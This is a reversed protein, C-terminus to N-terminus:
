PVSVTAPLQLGRKEYRYVTRETKILEAVLATTDLNKRSIEYQRRLGDIAQQLAPKGAAYKAIRDLVAMKNDCREFAYNIATALVLENPNGDEEQLEAPLNIQISHTSESLTSNIRANLRANDDLIDVSQIFFNTSINLDFNLSALGAGASLVASAIALRKESRQKALQKEIDRSLQLTKESFTYFNKNQEKLLWDETVLGLCDQALATLNAYENQKLQKSCRAIGALVAKKARVKVWEGAVMDDIKFYAGYYQNLAAPFNAAKEYQKGGTYYNVFVGPMHYFPGSLKQIADKVDASINDNAGAFSKRQEFNYYRLVHLAADGVPAKKNPKSVTFRESSFIDNLAIGEAIVHMKSDPNTPMPEYARCKGRDARNQAKALADTRFVNANKFRIELRSGKGRSMSSLVQTFIKELQDVQLPRTWYPYTMPRRKLTYEKTAGDEPKKIKVRVSPARLSDELLARAQDIKGAPMALGNMEVIIDGPRIGLKYEAETAPLQGVAIGSPGAALPLCIGKFPRKTELRPIRITDKALPQGNKYYSVLARAAEFQISVAAVSQSQHEVLDVTLPAGDLTAPNNQAVMKFLQNYNLRTIEDSVTVIGLGPQNPLTQAFSITVICFFAILFAVPSLTSNKMNSSTKLSSVSTNNNDYM